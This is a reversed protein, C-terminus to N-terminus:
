RRITWPAAWTKYNSLGSSATFVLRLDWYTGASLKITFPTTANGISATASSIDTYGASPHTREQVKVAVSVTGSEKTAIGNITIGDVYTGGLSLNQYKVDTGYVRTTDGGTVSNLFKLDNRNFKVQASVSHMAMVVLFIGTLMKTVFNKM